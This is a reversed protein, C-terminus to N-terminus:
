RGLSSRLLDLSSKYVTLAMDHQLKVEASKMMETELSVTNGNPEPVGGADRVPPPPLDAPAAGFHGPRTARMADASATEYSDSFPAIDSARYDPTDSNAINQAVVGQRASAHRALAHAMRMVELNDFM